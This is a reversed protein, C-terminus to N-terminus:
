KGLRNEKEKELFPFLPINKAYREMATYILRSITPINNEKFKTYIDLIDNMTPEIRIGDNIFANRQSLMEEPTSERKIVMKKEYFALFASKCIWDYRNSFKMNRVLACVSGIDEKYLSYYDLMTFAVKKDNIVIGNLVYNGVKIAIEIAEDLSLKDM